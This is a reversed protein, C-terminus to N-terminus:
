KKQNVLQGRAYAYCFSAEPMKLFFATTFFIIAGLPIGLSVTLFVGLNYSLLIWLAASMACTAILSKATCQFLARFDIHTGITPLCALLLVFGLISGLSGALALGSHGLNVMNFQSLAGVVFRGWSTSISVSAPGMLIFAFLVTAILSVCSVLAPTFTNKKALFGRVLISQISIAWLGISYAILAHSTQLSDEPTFTGGQYVLRVIPTSFLILGATAPLTIFTVWRLATQLQHQFRKEDGNTALRSLSPLVAQAVALSFVGLPFQFLRDAYYLWSVSGQVLLSALVTSILVWLQYVSSSLLTPAMLRLLAGVAKSQLPSRFRFRFGLKQLLLMQPLWAVLGGILVAWAVADIPRLFYGSLTVIIFIIVANLIAQASTPLAFYGLCNLVSSDLALVSVLVIYPAMIKLLVAALHGKEESINWGPALFVTISDSYMIAMVAALATVVVLLTRVASVAEEAEEPSKNLEDTFVPIFASTLSGEAVLRRLLNPIKFAAYFADTQLGAGFYRAVIADRVMGLIRSVLTLSFITGAAKAVSTHKTPSRENM